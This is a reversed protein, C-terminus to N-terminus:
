FESTFASKVAENVWAEDQDVISGDERTIVSGKGVLCSWQRAYILADFLDVFTAPNGPISPHTVKFM